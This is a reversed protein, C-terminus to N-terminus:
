QVAHFDIENGPRSYASEFNAMFQYRLEEWPTLPVEPMNMLWSQTMGTLAVPFYNTVIAEDGRYRAGASSPTHTGHAVPAAVPTGYDGELNQHRERHREITICGDEGLHHHELEAQLDAMSISAVPVRLALPARATSPM